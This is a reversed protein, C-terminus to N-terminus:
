NSAGPPKKAKIRDLVPPPLNNIRRVFSAIEWLQKESYFPGYASMGTMRIGHKVIWYIEAESYQTGVQPLQPVRPYHVLDEGPKGPEGHCGMCGLFYLKGGEVMSDELSEPTPAQLASASRRVSAHVTDRMLRTEWAPPRADSATEALGMTFYALGAAPLIVFAAVVGLLLPKM